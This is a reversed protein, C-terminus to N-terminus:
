CRRHVSCNTRKPKTSAVAELHWCLLCQGRLKHRLVHQLTRYSQAGAAHLHGDNTSWCKAPHQVRCPGCGDIDSASEQKQRRGHQGQQHAVLVLFGMQGGCPLSNESSEGNDPAALDQQTCSRQVQKRHQETTGRGQQRNICPVDQM